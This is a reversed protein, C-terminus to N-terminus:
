KRINNKVAQISSVKDGRLKTHVCMSWDSKDCQTCPHLSIDESVVVLTGGERQPELSHTVVLWVAGPAPAVQATTVRPMDFADM